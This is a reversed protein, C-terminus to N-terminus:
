FYPVGPVFPEEPGMAKMCNEAVERARRVAALCAGSDGVFSATLENSFSNEDFGHLRVLKVDASKLAADLMLFGMAKPIGDLFGWAKGLEGGLYDCAIVEGARATWQIDYMSNGSANDYPAMGVGGFGKPLGELTLEVVRRADSVEEAGFVWFSGRAGCSIPDNPALLTLLSTNTAKVADDAAIAQPCAGARSSIVGVSRFRKDYGMIEQIAPDLNAIVYGVTNGLQSYGVFETMGACSPDLIGSPAPVPTNTNQSIQEQVDAPTVSTGIDGMIQRIIDDKNM